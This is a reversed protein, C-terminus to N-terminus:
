IARNGGGCQRFVKGEERVDRAFRIRSFDIHCREIPDGLDAGSKTPSVHQRNIISKRSRVKVTPVAWASREASIALMPACGVQERLRAFDVQGGMDIEGTQSLPRFSRTQSKVPKGILVM